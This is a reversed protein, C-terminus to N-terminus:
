RARRKRSRISEWSDGIWKSRSSHSCSEAVGCFSNNAGIEVDNLWSIPSVSYHYFSEPRISKVNTRKTTYISEIICSREKGKKDKTQRKASKSSVLWVSSFSMVSASRREPEPSSTASKAVTPGRRGRVRRSEWWESESDSSSSNLDRSSKGTSVGYTTWCSSSNPETYVKYVM